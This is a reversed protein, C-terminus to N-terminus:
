REVRFREQEKMISPTEALTSIWKGGLFKVRLKLNTNSSQSFLSGAITCSLLTATFWTVLAKKM